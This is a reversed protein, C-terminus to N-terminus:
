ARVTIARKLTRTDIIADLMFAAVAARAIKSLLGWALLEAYQIHGSRAGDSLKVPRIITWDLGSERVSAAQRHKDEMVDRLLLRIISGAGFKGTRLSEAVRASSEVVIRRLAHKTMAPILNRTDTSCVRVGRQRRTRDVKAETMTGLACVVAEQDPVAPNVTAPDM